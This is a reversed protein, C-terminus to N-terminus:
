NNDIEILDIYNWTYENCSKNWNQRKERLKSSAVL